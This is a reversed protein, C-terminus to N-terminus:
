KNVQMITSIESRAPRRRKRAARKVRCSINLGARRASAQFVLLISVSAASLDDCPILTGQSSGMRSKMKRGEGGGGPQAGLLGGEGGQWGIHSACITCYFQQRPSCAEAQVSKMLRLLSHSTPPPPSDFYFSSLPAM